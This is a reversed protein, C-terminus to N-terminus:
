KELPNSDLTELLESAKKKKMFYPKKFLLIYVMAIIIIIFVIILFLPFSFANIKTYYGIEGRDVQFIFQAQKLFPTGLCWSYFVEPFVILCYYKDDHELWLDKYTITFTKGFEDYTFTLSPFQKINVKKDCSYYTLNYFANYIEQCSNDKLKDDFFEKLVYYQLYEPAYIVGLDFDLSAKLYIINTKGFFIKNFKLEWSPFLSSSEIRSSIFYEENYKNDYIHPFDGIIIEGENEKTFKLTFIQQNIISKESLYRILSERDKRGKYSFGIYANPITTSPYNFNFKIPLYFPFNKQIISKGKEDEFNITDQSLFGKSYCISSQYEEDNKRKKYSDSIDEKFKGKLEKGPIMLFSTNSSILTPINQEPSGIKITTILNSSIFYDIFEMEESYEQKKFKFVLVSSLINLPLLLYILSKIM